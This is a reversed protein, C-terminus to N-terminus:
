LGPGVPRMDGCPLRNISKDILEYAVDDDNQLAPDTIGIVELNSFDEVMKELTELFM